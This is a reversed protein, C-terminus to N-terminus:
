VALSDMNEMAIVSAWAVGTGNQHVAQEIPGSLIIITFILLSIEAMRM